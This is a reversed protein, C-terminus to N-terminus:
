DPDIAIAALLPAGLTFLLGTMTDEAEVDCLVIVPSRCWVEKLERCCFGILLALLGYPPLETCIGDGPDDLM